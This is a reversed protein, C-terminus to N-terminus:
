ETGLITSPDSGWPHGQGEGQQKSGLAGEGSTVEGLSVGWWNTRLTGQLEPDATPPQSPLLRGTLLLGAM